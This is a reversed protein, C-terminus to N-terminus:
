LFSADRIPRRSKARGIELDPCHVLVFLQKADCRPIKRGDAPNRGRLAQADAARVGLGRLM